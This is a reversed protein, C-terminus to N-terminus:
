SCIIDTKVQTLTFFYPLSLYVDEVFTTQVFDNSFDVKRIAWGRNISLSM